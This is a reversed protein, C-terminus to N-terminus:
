IGIAFYLLTRSASSAPTSYTIKIPVSSLGPTGWIVTDSVLPTTNDTFSVSMFCAICKSTFAGPFSITGPENHAAFTVQGIKLVFNGFFPISYHQLTPDLNSYSNQIFTQNLVSVDLEANAANLTFISEAMELIPRMVGVAYMEAIGNVDDYSIANKGNSLANAISNLGDYISSVGNIGNLDHSHPTPPFAVPATSWDITTYQSNTAIIGSAIANAPATVFEGGITQYTIYYSGIPYGILLTISGYVAKGISDSAQQWKHTLYYDTNEVLVKGSPGTMIFSDGYFPAADPIILYANIGNSVTIPQPENSIKNAVLSGTPDFIYPVSM